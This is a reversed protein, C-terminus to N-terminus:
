LRLYGLEILRFAARTAEFEGLATARALDAVTRRGDAAALVRLADEALDGDATKGTSRPVAEASPVRTRYVEMEDLRCLGDLLMGQTDLALLSPLAERDVGRLFVFHGSKVVL